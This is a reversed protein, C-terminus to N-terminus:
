LPNEYHPIHNPNSESSSQATVTRINSHSQARLWKQSNSRNWVWWLPKEVICHVLWYIKPISSRKQKETQPPARTPMSAHLLYKRDFSKTMDQANSKKMDRAHCVSTVTTLNSKAWWVGKICIDQGTSAQIATIHGREDWNHQEIYLSICCLYRTM